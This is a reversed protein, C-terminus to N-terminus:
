KWNIYQVNCSKQGNRYCLLRLLSTLGKMRDCCHSCHVCFSWYLVRALKVPIFYPNNLLHTSIFLFNFQYVILFQCHHSAQQDMDLWKESDSELHLTWGISARPQGSWREATWYLQFCKLLGEPQASVSCARGSPAPSPAALPPVSPSLLHVTTWVHGDLCVCARVMAFVCVRVLVIRPWELDRFSGITNQWAIGGQGQRYHTWRARGSQVAQRPLWMDRTQVAPSFLVAPRRGVGDRESEESWNWKTQLM